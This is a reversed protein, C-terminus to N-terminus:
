TSERQISSKSLSANNAKTSKSKKPENAKIWETPYSGRWIAYSSGILYKTVWGAFRLKSTVKFDSQLLFRIDVIPRTAFLSRLLSRKPARLYGKAELYYGDKGGATDGTYVFFDPTYRHEKGVRISGCDQCSTGRLTHYYPITDASTCRRIKIGSEKAIDYIVSEFRSDWEEGHEDRWRRDSRKIGIKEGIVKKKM